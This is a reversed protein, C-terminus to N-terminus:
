EGFNGFPHVRPAASFEAGLQRVHDEAKRKSSHIAVLERNAFACFQSNRINIVRLQVGGMDFV